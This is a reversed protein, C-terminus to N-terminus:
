NRELYFKELFIGVFEEAFQCWEKDVSITYLCNDLCNDVELSKLGDICAQSRQKFKAISRFSDGERLSGFYDADISILNFKQSNLNELALLPHVKESNREMNNQRTYTKIDSQYLYTSDNDEPRILAAIQQFYPELSAVFTEIDGQIYNCLKSFASIRTEEEPHCSLFDEMLKITTQSDYKDTKVKDDLHADIHLLKNGKNQLLQQDLARAVFPIIEGHCSAIYIDNYNLRFNLLDEHSKLYNVSNGQILIPTKSLDIKM